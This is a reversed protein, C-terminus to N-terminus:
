AGARGEARNVMSRLKIVGDIVSESIKVLKKYSDELEIKSMSDKREFVTKVLAHLEAHDKMIGAFVPSSTVGYKEAENDLWKGLACAHHDSLSVMGPNMKGDILARVKTIWSLHRLVVLTFPFLQASEAEPRTKGAIESVMTDIDLTLSIMKDVDSLESTMLSNIEDSNSKIVEFSQNNEENSSVIKNVNEAVGDCNRKLNETTEAVLRSANLIEESGASLSEMESTIETFAKATEGVTGSLWKMTTGTADVISHADSLTDIMNKLTKGINEANESTVESLSRIEEAVVSFGKGAEGAHAAEIAANMALMNTKESIGNIVTIINKMVDINESMVGIVSLVRDTKESADDVASSLKGALTLKDSVIGTVTRISESIHEVSAKITGGLSEVSENVDKMQSNIGVIADVAEKTNRAFTMFRDQQVLIDSITRSSNEISERFALSLTETADTIKRADDYVTKRDIMESEAARNDSVAANKNKRNFM